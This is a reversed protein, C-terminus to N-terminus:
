CSVQSLKDTVDFKNEVDIFAEFTHKPTEAQFVLPEVKPVGLMTNLKLLSSKAHRKMWLDLPTGEHSEVEDKLSWLKNM